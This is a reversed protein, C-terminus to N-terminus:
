WKYVPIAAVGGVVLNRGTRAADWGEGDEDWAGGLSQASLDGLMYIVLATFFQTLLPRRRQNNSFANIVITLPGLRQHFPLAFLSAPPSASSQPSSPASSAIPAPSPSTSVTATPVGVAAPADPAPPHPEAATVSAQLTQELTAAGATGEVEQKAGDAALDKVQRDRKIETGTKEGIREAGQAAATAASRAGGISAAARRGEWQAGLARGHGHFAISVCRKSIGNHVDANVARRALLTGGRRLALPLSIPSM